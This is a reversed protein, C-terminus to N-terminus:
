SMRLMAKEKRADGSNPAYVIPRESFVCVAVILSIGIRDTSRVKIKPIQLPASHNSSHIFSRCLSPTRPPCNWHPCISSVTRWSRLSGGSRKRISGAAPYIVVLGMSQTLSLSSELIHLPEDEGTVHLVEFHDDFLAREIRTALAHNDEV